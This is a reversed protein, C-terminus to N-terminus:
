EEPGATYGEKRFRRATDFLALSNEVSTEPPLHHDPGCIYGGGKGLSEICYLTEERVEEPSAFPIRQTNIGGYFTIEKGYEKKLHHASMPLTHLQVTEWVDMGIEILDPLVATINGCSHFWVPKGRKKGLEFLRAYRPKLLQRWLHPTFMMGRQTAFDDGCTFIAQADGCADLMNECLRMTHQTVHELAAEFVKPETAMKMLAAELGFLDCVTCFLPKWHPGGVALHPTFSRASLATGEYDYDRADPWSFKEIESVTTTESFPYSGRATGYDGSQLTGYESYSAGDPSERTPGCYIPTLNVYDIGLRQNVSAIPVWLKQAIAVQNEVVTCAIPIRDPIEHRIATLVRERSDM